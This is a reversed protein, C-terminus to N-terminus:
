FGDLGEHFCSKLLCVDQERCSPVNNYAVHNADLRCPLALQETVRWPRDKLIAACRGVHKQTSAQGERAVHAAGHALHTEREMRNWSISCRRHRWQRWPRCRVDTIELGRAAWGFSILPTPPKTPTDPKTADSRGTKWMLLAKGITPTTPQHLARAVHKGVIRRAILNVTRVCSPACPPRKVTREDAQRATSRNANTNTEKEKGRARNTEM